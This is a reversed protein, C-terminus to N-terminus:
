ESILVKELIPPQDKALIQIFYIGNSLQQKPITIVEEYEPMVKRSIMPMIARGDLGVVRLQVDTEEDALLGIEIETQTQYVITEIESLVFDETNAQRMSLVCSGLTGGRSLYRSVRNTRICRETGRYCLRVKNGCSVDEAEITITSTATCNTQLDTVTVEYDCTHNPCVNISASTSGNSWSYAYNGSGGSVTATIDTCEAPAYGPYVKMATAQTAVQLTSNYCATYATLPCGAAPNGGGEMGVLEIDTPLGDTTFSFTKCVAQVPGCGGDICAWWSSAYGDWTPYSDEFYLATNGFLAYAFFENGTNPSILSVPHNVITAGGNIYFAFNATNQDAGRHTTNLGAGTCFTLTIEYQNNGLDQINDITLDSLHCSYAAFPIFLSSCFLLFTYILNLRM